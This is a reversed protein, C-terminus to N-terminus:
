YIARSLQQKEDEEIASALEMTLDNQIKQVYSASDILIKGARQALEYTLCNMFGPTFVNINDVGYVYEICLNDIVSRIRNGSIIFVPHNVPPHALGRVIGYDSSLVPEGDANYLNVIWILSAPFAYCYSYKKYLVNNSEEEAIHKLVERELAFSWPAKSLLTRVALPWHLKMLQAAQSREDISSIMPQNIYSLAINVLDTQTVTSNFQAAPM